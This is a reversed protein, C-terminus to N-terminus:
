EVRITIMEVNLTFPSSSSAVFDPVKPIATAGSM